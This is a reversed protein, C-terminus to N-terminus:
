DSPNAPEGFDVDMSGGMDMSGTGESASGMGDSPEDAVSGSRNGSGCAALVLGAAVLLVM